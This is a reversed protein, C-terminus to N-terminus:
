PEIILESTFAILTVEDGYAIGSIKPMLLEIVSPDQFHNIKTEPHPYYILGSHTQAQWQLQIPAFSFTEPNHRPSWKVQPLTRQPSLRFRYPAIAVNLTGPYFASLDVGLKQFHPTQMEITGQPYPSDKALGSAVRHGSVIKGTIHTM